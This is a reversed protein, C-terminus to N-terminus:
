AGKQLSIVRGLELGESEIEHLQAGAVRSAEEAASQGKIALLVGGKEVLHWSLKKLKEFPAVARATVVRARINQDQARGRLVTIGLGACAQELFDVRRQLPEILIMSIDPRALALPIGPLGAGSGIDIVTAGQPILSAVPLSNFIHREWIREGERPGILGRLAGESALFDAYGTIEAVREPFYRAILTERSVM